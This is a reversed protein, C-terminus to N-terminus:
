IRHMANFIEESRLNIDLGVSEGKERLAVILKDIPMTSKETNARMIMTFYEGMLTQSIDIINISLDALFTSVDRIIGVRDKGIVSIIVNM